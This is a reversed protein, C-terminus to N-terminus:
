AYSRMQAISSTLEAISSRKSALVKQAKEAHARWERVQKVDANCISQPCKRCLDNLTLCLAAKEEATSPRQNRIDKFGPRPKVYGFLDANRAVSFNEPANM